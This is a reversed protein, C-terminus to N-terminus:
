SSSVPHLRCPFCRSGLGDDYGAEDKDIPDSLATVVVDRGSDELSGRGSSGSEAVINCGVVRPGAGTQEM